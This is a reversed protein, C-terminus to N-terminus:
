GPQDVRVVRLDRTMRVADEIRDYYGPLLDAESYGLSRYFKRATM